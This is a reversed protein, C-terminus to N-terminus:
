IIIIESINNRETVVIYWVIMELEGFTVTCSIYNPMVLTKDVASILVFMNSFVQM